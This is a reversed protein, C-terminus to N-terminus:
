ARSPGRRRGPPATACSSASATPRPRSTASCPSRPGSSSRGRPAAPPRAGGARRGPPERDRPRRRRRLPGGQRRLTRLRRAQQGGRLGRDGRRHGGRLGQRRLAQSRHRHATRPTGPRDDSVTRRALAQEHLPRDGQWQARASTRPRARGRQPPGGAAGTADVVRAPIGHAARAATGTPRSTPGAQSQILVLSTPEIGVRPARRCAESRCRRARLAEETCWARMLSDGSTLRGGRRALTGPYPALRSADPVRGTDRRALQDLAGVVADLVEDSRRM